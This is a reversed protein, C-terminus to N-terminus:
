NDFTNIQPFFIKSIQERGDATKRSFGKRAKLPDIDTSIPTLGHNTKSKTNQYNSNTRRHPAPHRM